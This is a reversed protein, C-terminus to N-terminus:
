LDIVFSDPRHDAAYTMESANSPVNTLDFHLFPVTPTAENETEQSLGRPPPAPPAPRNPKDLVFHPRSSPPSPPPNSPPRVPAQLKRTSGRKQSRQREFATNLQPSGDNSGRTVADGGSAFQSPVSSAAESSMVSSNFIVERDSEVERSNRQSGGPGRSRTNARPRPAPRNVDGSDGERTASSSGSNKQRISNRVKPTPKESINADSSSILPSTSSMTASVDFSNDAANNTQGLASPRPPSTPADRNPRTPAVPQRANGGGQEYGNANNEQELAAVNAVAM